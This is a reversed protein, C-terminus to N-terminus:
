TRRSTCVGLLKWAPCLKWALVHRRETSHSAIDPCVPRRYGVAGILVEPTGGGGQQPARHADLTTEVAGAMPPIRVAEQEQRQLGRARM